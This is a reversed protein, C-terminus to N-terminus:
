KLGKERMTHVINDFNEWAEDDTRMSCIIAAEVEAPTNDYWKNLGPIEYASFDTKNYGSEGHTIAIVQKPNMLSETFYKTTNDTNNSM